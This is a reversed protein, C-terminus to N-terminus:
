SSSIIVEVSCLLCFEGLIIMAFLHVLGLYNSVYILFGNSMPMLNFYKCVLTLLGALIIGHMAYYVLWQLLYLRLKVGVLLYSKAIGNMKENTIPGSYFLSCIIASLVYMISPVLVVPLAPQVTNKTVLKPTDQIQSVPYVEDLNSANLLATNIAYQAAALAQQNPLAQEAGGFYINYENESSLFICIENSASDAITGTCNAIVEDSTTADLLQIDISKDSLSKVVTDVFTASSTNFAGINIKNPYSWAEGPFLRYNGAIYSGGEETEYGIFFGITYLMLLAPMLFIKLAWLKPKKRDKRLSLAILTKAQSGESPIPARNGNNISSKQNTNTTTTTISNM